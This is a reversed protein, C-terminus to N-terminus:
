ERLDAGDWRGCRDQGGDVAVEGVVDRRAERVAGDDRPLVGYRVRALRRRERVDVVVVVVACCLVRVRVGVVQDLVGIQRAAQRRQAPLVDLEGLRALVVVVQRAPDLPHPVDIRVPVLDAGPGVRADDLGDPGGVGDDVADAGQVRGDHRAQYQAADAVGDGVGADPVLHEDEVRAVVALGAGAGGRECGDVKDLGNRPGRGLALALKATEAPVVLHPAVDGVQHVHLALARWDHVLIGECTQSNVADSDIATPDVTHQPVVLM